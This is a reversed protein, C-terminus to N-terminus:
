PRRFLSTWWDFTGKQGIWRLGEAVFDHREWSELEPNKGKYWDSNDLMLWGGSPIFDLANQMCRARCSAEGDVFVLDFNFGPYNLIADAYPNFKWAERSSGRVLWLYAKENLLGEVKLRARIRDYWDSHHEISVVSSCNRAFWLTSGGAGWEFVSHSPKAIEQLFEFSAPVIWPEGKKMAQRGYIIDDSVTM